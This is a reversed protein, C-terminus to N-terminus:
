LRIILKVDKGSIWTSGGREACFAQLRWTHKYITALRTARVELFSGDNLQLLLNDNVRIASPAIKPVISATSTM